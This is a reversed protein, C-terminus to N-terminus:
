TPLDRRRPRRAVLLLWAWSPSANTRCDCGSGEPPAADDTDGTESSESSEEGADTDLAVPACIKAHAEDGLCFHLKTSEVAIAPHSVVLWYVGGPLDALPRATTADSWDLDLADGVADGLAMDVLPHLAFELPEAPAALGLWLPGGAHEVRYYLTSLSFVRADDTLSGDVSGAEAVVGALKAAYPYSDSHGAREGTALNWASFTPWAEALSDDYAALVTEMSAVGAPDAVAATLLADVIAPGHREGLFDFWLATGYAFAPVPGAPPKFISRTPDALYRDCLRLYDRSDPRFQREAWTATGESLWVPLEKVYAGQVAHFLEHSTVTDVAETLSAYSYGAFDNEMAFAGACRPPGGACADVLFVGDADGGFDVLYVDFAASGGLPGLGLEAEAVPARLGLEAFKNFVDHTTAGVQAVYDPVGDADDDELPVAHDGAITYHVRVGGAVDDHTLVEDGPDFSWLGGETPREARALTPALALALAAVWVRTM